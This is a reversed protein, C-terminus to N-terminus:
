LDFDSLPDEHEEEELKKIGLIKGMLHHKEGYEQLFGTVYNESNGAWRGL